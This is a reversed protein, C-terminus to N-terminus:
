TRQNFLLLLMWRPYRFHKKSWNWQIGQLCILFYPCPYLLSNVEGTLLGKSLSEWFPTMHDQSLYCVVLSFYSSLLWHTYSSFAELSPPLSFAPFMQLDPLKQSPLFLWHKLIKSGEDYSWLSLQQHAPFWTTWWVYLHSIVRVQLHPTSIQPHHWISLQFLFSPIISHSPLSNSHSSSCLCIYNLILFYKAPENEDSSYDKFPLFRFPTSSCLSRPISHM